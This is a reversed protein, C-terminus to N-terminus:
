HVYYKNKKRYAKFLIFMSNLTNNNKNSLATDYRPKIKNIGQM